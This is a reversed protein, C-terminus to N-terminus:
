LRINQSLSRNGSEWSAVDCELESSQAWARARVIPDMRWNRNTSPDVFSANSSKGVIINEKVIQLAREYVRNHEESQAPTM